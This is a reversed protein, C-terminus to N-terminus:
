AGAVIMGALDGHANTPQSETTPAQIQRLFEEEEEITVFRM